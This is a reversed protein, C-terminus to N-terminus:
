LLMERAHRLLSDDKVGHILVLGDERLQLAEKKTMTPTGWLSAISPINAWGREQFDGALLWDWGAAPKIGGVDRTLWKLFKLDGSLFCADGNIHDRVGEGGAIFAGATKVPHSLNQLSDWTWSMNSLWDRKLPAVDSAMNFIAKYAPVKGAEIMHYIYELAGFFLGNCGRPWGKERRQSTHQYVNFKRSLYKVAAPEFKPCDFRNVLLIDALDSHKPELDALLKALLGAQSRDGEWFPLSILIKSSQAQPKKM